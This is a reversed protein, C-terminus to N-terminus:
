DAKPVASHAATQDARRAVWHAVRQEALSAVM